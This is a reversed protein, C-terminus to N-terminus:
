NEDDYLPRMFDELTPRRKKATSEVALTMLDHSEGDKHIEDIYFDMAQMEEASRRTPAKDGSESEEAAAEAEAEVEDTAPSFSDQAPAEAGTESEAQAFSSYDGDFDECFLTFDSHATDDTHAEECFEESEAPRARDFLERLGDLLDDYDEEPEETEDYELTFDGQLAAEEADSTGCPSTDAPTCEEAAATEEATTAPSEIETLEASVKSAIEESLIERAAGAACSLLEELESTQKLCEDLRSRLLALDSESPLTVRKKEEEKVEPKDMGLLLRTLKRKLEASERCVSTYRENVYAVYSDVEEISYGRMAKSFTPKKLSNHASM